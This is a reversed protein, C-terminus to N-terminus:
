QSARMMYGDLVVGIRGNFGSPTAVGSPYKILVEFNVAAQLVVPPELYYPRGLANARGIAAIGTAAANSAVAAGDTAIYAKPPFAQLPTDRIYNKSLVNLELLGSQLITDVDNFAGVAADAAVTSFDALLAKTYTNATNVSGPWFLVEISEIMFTKGSPLTNPVELNTDSQTKSTGAVAGAASTIGAGAPQSFFTFQSQGAAPYLLFDYLRQRIVESQAPNTVRYKQFDDATPYGNM